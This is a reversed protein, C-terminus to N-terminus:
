FQGQEFSQGLRERLYELDRKFNAKSMVLAVLFRSPHVAPQSKLLRRITYPRETREM